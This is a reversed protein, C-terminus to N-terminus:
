PCRATRSWASATAGVVPREVTRPRVLTSRSQPGEGSRWEFLHAEHRDAKAHVVLHTRAARYVKAPDDKPDPEEEAWSGVNVYIAEGVPKTTPVHTHGMVIFSAPFLKALEAARVGMLAAPDVDPRARSFLAHLAVWVVLLSGIAYVAYGGMWPRLIAIAIFALIMFVFVSLRDLMVSALVGRPTSGIPTVHLSLAARLQEAPLGKSRAHEVLRREHEERLRAGGESLYARAVDRLRFVASFFRVFLGATGRAGLMLGWSIYSALGRTEHGYEKMGPTRRVIYRLLTDSLSQLVRRPDTPCLPAFLYPTACFPDYQHGHEVYALGERYFFWPEFEVRAAVDEVRADGSTLLVCFDRQVADWYMELDHNGTVFTVANGESVFAALERFVDPHRAVIRRLKVRVHDEAGGLGFAREAATPETTIEDGERPDISMGVFDVFDGALVLRWRDAPPAVQRYHALLAALDQDISTSRPVSPGSDNLDSGLHVDSFVLLSESPPHIRPAM